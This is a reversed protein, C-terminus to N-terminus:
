DGNTIIEVLDNVDKRSSGDVGTAAYALKKMVGIRERMGKGDEEVLVRRLSGLVGQKTMVGGLGVGIGWIAEVTRMNLRQDGFFPRCILPVGGVVSELISNWGCHTVFVGVSPHRLLEVQPAWTVLKGNVGSESVGDDLIGEPKTGRYSWLFPFGSEKLAEALATVEHPPPTVVSGFSVYIVSAADHGSLWELCNNPDSEPKPNPPSTLILPGIHLFNRFRTKLHDSIEPDLQHFSNILVATAKPLILGMKHLLIDVPSESNEPSIIIGEPLDSSRISSFGPLFDLTQGKNSIGQAELNRRIEDTDVHVFLSRVAATWLAVWPIRKEGAMDGAFWFFADSVICGIKLGVEKEAEELGREFNRPTAKLFLEVAEIPNRSPVHDDRAGDDVDFPRVNNIEEGKMGSFLTQNSWSTSLFSFRADPAVASLNRVLSLLPGAHTGFPFALVAVHRTPDAM